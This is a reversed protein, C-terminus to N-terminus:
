TIGERRLLPRSPNIKRIVPGKKPKQITTYQVIGKKVVKRVTTRAVKNGAVPAIAVVKPKRPPPPKPRGKWLRDVGEPVVYGKPPQAKAGPRGSPKKM